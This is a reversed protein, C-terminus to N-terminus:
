LATADKNYKRAKKLIMNRKLSSLYDIFLVGNLHDIEHQVCVADLGEFEEELTKGDVDQFKVKVAAPRIVEAYQQPISLCGEEYVSLKESSWIVKPNIFVRPNKEPADASQGSRYGAEITLIGDIEEGYQWAGDPLDMVFMRNLLGVQNAALGIGRGNYMTNVMKKAQSKIEETINEIVSAKEKLVADPVKIIEYVDDSMKRPKM